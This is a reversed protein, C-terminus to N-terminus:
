NTLCQQLNSKPQFAMSFFDTSQQLPVIVHELFSRQFEDSHLNPQSRTFGFDCSLCWAVALQYLQGMETSIQKSLRKAVLQATIIPINTEERAEALAEIPRNYALEILVISLTLLTQNAVWINPSNTPDSAASAADPTKSSSFRKSIYPQVFAQDTDKRGSPLYLIDQKAWNELWPTSHLQLVTSGLAFAAEYRIGQSLKVRKVRSGKDMAKHLPPLPEGIHISALPAQVDSRANISYLGYCADNEDSLVGHCKDDDQSNQINRILECLDKIDLGEVNSIDKKKAQNYPLPSKKPEPFVFRTARVKQPDSTKSYDQDQKPAPQSSEDGHSASKPTSSQGVTTVAPNPPDSDCIFPAIEAERWDLPQEIDKNSEGIRKGGQDTTYSFLFKFRIDQDGESGDNSGSNKLDKTAEGQSQRRAELRLNAHHPTACECHWGRSLASHLSRACDRVKRYTKMADASQATHPLSGKLVPEHNKMVELKAKREQRIVALRQSQNKLTELESLRRNLRDIGVEGKSRSLFWKIPKLAKVSEPPPTLIKQLGDMMEKVDTMIDKFAPYAEGLHVKLEDSLKPDQWAEGNPDQLLRSLQSDSVFSSLIEEITNLYIRKQTGFSRSLQRMEKGALGRKYRDISLQIVPVLGVVLGALELGSM